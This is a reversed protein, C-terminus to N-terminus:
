FLEAEVGSVNASAANTISAVGPVIFAQVQLDKYDYYFASLRSSLRGDLHRANLGVEYAWLKEPDYGGPVAATINFGGSKFGRSVTAYIMLDETARFEAGFKPTFE